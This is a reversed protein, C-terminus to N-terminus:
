QVTFGERYVSNIEFIMITLFIDSITWNELVIWHIIELYSSCIIWPCNSCGYMSYFTDTNPTIRTRIKGCESQICLSVFYIETNLRFAPFYPGCYSRIRVSKVWHMVVKTPILIYENNFHLGLNIHFRIAWSSSGLFISIQSRRTSLIYYLNKTVKPHRSELFTHHATPILLKQAFIM